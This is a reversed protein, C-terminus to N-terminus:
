QKKLGGQNAAKIAAAKEFMKQAEEAKGASKYAQGLNEYAGSSKPDIAVAKSFYKIAEEAKGQFGYSIGMYNVTEADNPNLDFSKHLYILGQTYDQKKEGYFRGLDRYCVALNGKAENFDPDLALSAEYAKIADEKKDLYFYDNGLLLWANKYGPHITLAKNLYTEAQLLMKNRKAVDKEKVSETLLSGGAANLIKASNSSTKVDTNFLTFDDKWVANRTTTKATYLLMFVGVLGYLITRNEGAIKQIIYAMLITFGLSPMFMFRESMNTGIPFVVNSVISLTILYFLIAFSVVKNKNWNYAAFVIAFIYVCMSALVKVDGFHMIDIHRPYYDHTLQYPVFLLQIYKGLTFLITAIKEGASFSVYQNGVLKIFPNNMLENPTGGTDFGLISTRIVLFALTPIILPLTSKLASTLSQSRFLMLAMPAIALFTIANEKSMLAAFFCLGAFVSYKAKETDIRMLMFYLASVAGLMCIIEDRGKINAVAETHIPHAMYLATAIASFIIGKEGGNSRFLLNLLKFVVLGLFGYWIINFLHGWFPQKGFIEYEIAFMVPTLPRYRGGAVLNQKGEEKFFGFFTDKTLLGPIGKVGQVTYMNDYIVIADDQTYQHGLTNGYLVFAMLMFLFHFKNKVWSHTSVPIEEVAVRTSPNAQQKDYFKKKSM